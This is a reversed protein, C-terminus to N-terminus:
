PSGEGEPMELNTILWRIKWAGDVHETIATWHGGTIRQGDPALIDYPGRMVATGDGATIVEDTTIDLTAGEVPPAQQLYDVIEERGEFVLGSAFRMGGEVFLNAVGQLDGANLREQYVETLTEPDDQAIGFGAAAFTVVICALWARPISM